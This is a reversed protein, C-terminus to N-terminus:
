ARLQGLFQSLVSKEEESRLTRDVGRHALDRTLRALSDPGALHLLGAMRTRSQLGMRRFAMAELLRSWRALRRPPPYGCDRLRRSLTRPAIHLSKATEAVGHHPPWGALLVLVSELSEPSRDGNISNVEVM